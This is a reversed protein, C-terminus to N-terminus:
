QTHFRDLFHLWPFKLQDHRKRADTSLSTSRLQWCDLFACKGIDVNMDTPVLVTTLQACRIFACDGISKVRPLTVRELKSCDTFACMGIKEAVPLAIDDLCLCDSFAYTGVHLIIPLWIQSLMSCSSFAYEGVYTAASLTLSRLSSCRCFAKDGIHNVSPLLIALLRSCGHFADNGIRKAAPLAVKAVSSCGMLAEEEVNTVHPLWLSQLEHNDVASSTKTTQGLWPLGNGDGDPPRSSLRRAHEIFVHKARFPVSCRERHRCDALFFIKDMEPISGQGFLFVYRKAGVSLDRVNGSTSRSIKHVLAMLERCQRQTVDISEESSHEQEIQEFFLDLVYTEVCRKQALLWAHTPAKAVLMAHHPAFDLLINVVISNM